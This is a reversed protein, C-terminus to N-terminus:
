EFRITKAPSITAVIRSPLLMMLMAVTMAGANLLLLSQLNLSVPVADLYYTAADLKIFGFQQQLLCIAIGAANGWLMGKGILLFALYLFVRRIRGGTAGMAKLVGIMGVRELIIVLLGSIMTFGSVAIMLVLIIAVNIDLVDLWGFIMPNLERMSRVLLSNGKSDTIAALTTALSDATQDLRAYNDVQIELGSSENDDWGNLRRIHRIDAIVYLKDYDEFGTDYIGAIHFRRARVNDQLFYAALSEGSSLGLLSAIHRSVLVQSSISDPSIQPTEGEVLYKRFFSFDYQADVGKIVIGQNDNTKKLLGPKTAFACAATVGPQSLVANLLTADTVIPHTEFSINGDFNTVRIHSGFGAVKNRIEKKFGMIIAVSLVMVALGLAVGTVAIRVAPAMQRGGGDARYIRRAIFYELNM